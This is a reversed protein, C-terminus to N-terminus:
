CQRMRLEYDNLDFSELEFMFFDKMGTMGRNNM